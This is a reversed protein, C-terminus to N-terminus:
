RDQYLNLIADKQKPTLKSFYDLLTRDKQYSLLDRHFFEEPTSNCCEIIQLLMDIPPVFQSSEIKNIYCDNKGLRLSLERASLNAKDRIQKIRIVIEKNDM